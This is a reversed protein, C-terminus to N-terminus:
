GRPIREVSLGVCIFHYWSEGDKHIATNECMLMSDNDPMTCVECSSAVPGSFDSAQEDKEDGSQTLHETEDENDLIYRPEFPEAEAEEERTISSITSDNNGQAGVVSNVEEQLSESDHSIQQKDSSSSRDGLSDSSSKTQHACNWDITDKYREWINVADIFWRSYIPNAWLDTLLSLPTGLIDGSELEAAHEEERQDVALFADVTDFLAGLNEYGQSIRARISQVSM